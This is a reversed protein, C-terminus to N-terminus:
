GRPSRRARQSRIAPRVDTRTELPQVSVGKRWPRVVREEVFGVSEYVSRAARLNEDLTLTITDCNREQLWHVGAVVLARGLGQRRLDPRVGVFDLHGQDRAHCQVVAYGALGGARRAVLVVRNADHGGAIDAGSPPAGPSLAHHSRAL